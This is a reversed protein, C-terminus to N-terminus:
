LTAQILSIVVYLESDDVEQSNRFRLNKFLYDFRYMFVTIQEFPPRATRCPVAKVLQCSVSSRTCCHQSVIRNNYVM